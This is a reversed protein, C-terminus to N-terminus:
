ARKITQLQDSLEALWDKDTQLAKEEDSLKASAREKESLRQELLSHVHTRYEHAQESRYSRLEDTGKEISVSTLGDVIEIARDRWSDLNYTVVKVWNNADSKGPNFINFLGGNQEVFSEEKLHLLGNYIDPLKGCEIGPTESRPTAYATDIQAKKYLQALEADIAQKAKRSTEAARMAFERYTSYILKSYESAMDRAESDNSIKTKRIRWERLKKTMSSRATEFGHPEDYNSLHSLSENADKLRIIENELKEIQSQRSTSSAECKDAEEDLREEITAVLSDFVAIASRVGEALPHSNAYETIVDDHSSQVIQPNRLGLDSLIRVVQSINLPPALVFFLQEESVDKRGILWPVAERVKRATSETIFVLIPSNTLDTAELESIDDIAEASLPTNSDLSTSGFLMVLPFSETILDTNANAFREFDFQRNPTSSLWRIVESVEERKKIVDELQQSHHIRVEGQPVGAESFANQLREFDDTTGSFDLDFDYGNMEDHFIIPVHHVWDVLPLHKYREIASNAKPLHGNFLATTELLYPNHSLEASVM